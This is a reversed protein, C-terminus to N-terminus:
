DVVIYAAYCDPALEYAIERMHDAGRKSTCVWSREWGGLEFERAEGKRWDWDKACVWQTPYRDRVVMIRYKM